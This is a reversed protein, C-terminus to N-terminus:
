RVKPKKAHASEFQAFEAKSVSRDGDKDMQAFSGALASDGSVEDPTLKGDGNIDLTGYDTATAMSGAAGGQDARAAGKARARKTDAAGSVGTDGAPADIPPTAPQAPQAPTAPMAPTAPTAQALALPTVLSAALALSAAFIPHITTRSTKM